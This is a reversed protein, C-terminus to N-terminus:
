GVDHCDHFISLLEQLFVVNLIQGNKSQKTYVNKKIHVKM